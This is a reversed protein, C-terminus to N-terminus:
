CLDTPQWGSATVVTLQSVPARGRPTAAGGGGGAKFDSHGVAIVFEAFFVTLFIFLCAVSQSFLPM